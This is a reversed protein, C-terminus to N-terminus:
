KRRRLRPDLFQYTQDVMLNLVVFLVGTLMIGAQIVIYERNLVASTIMMGLGPLSFVVETMVAGRLMGGLQLGIVTVLPMLVNRMGHVWVVRWGPEGRAKAALIYPQGMVELLSSRTIRAILGVYWAGLTIAPLALHWMGQWFDEWPAVFGLTPFWGLGVGFVWILIIGLYFSPFANGGIALTTALVDVWSNRYLAAMVGTPIGIALAILLSFAALTLTVPLAQYVALEFINQNTIYSTGWDGQVFNKLWLGYQVIVPENLGLEQTLQDYSAKSYDSGLMITVPDGPALKLFAFSAISVLLLVLLTQGLKTFTARWM